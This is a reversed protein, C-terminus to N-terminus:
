SLSSASATPDTLGFERPDEGLGKAVAETLVSSLSRRHEGALRRLKAPYPMPIQGGPSEKEIQRFTTTIARRDGRTNM